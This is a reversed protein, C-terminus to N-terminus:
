SWMFTVGAAGLLLLIGRFQRLILRVLGYRPEPLANPGFRARRAAVESLGEWDSM